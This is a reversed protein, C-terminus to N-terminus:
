FHFVDNNGKLIWSNSRAKYDRGRIFRPPASEAFQLTKIKLVARNIARTVQDPTM